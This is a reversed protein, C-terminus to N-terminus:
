KGGKAKGDPKEGQPQPEFPAPPATVQPNEAPTVPELAPRGDAGLPQTTSAIGSDAYEPAERIAGMKLAWDVDYPVEARKFLDGKRLEPNYGWTDTMVEYTKDDAM